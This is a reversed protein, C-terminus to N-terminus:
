NKLFLVKACVTQHFRIPLGFFTGLRHAMNEVVKIKKPGM